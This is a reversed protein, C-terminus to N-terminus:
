PATGPRKMAYQSGRRIEHLTPQQMGMNTLHLDERVTARIRRSQLGYALSVRCESDPGRNGETFLQVHALYGVAVPDRDGRVPPEVDKLAWRSM